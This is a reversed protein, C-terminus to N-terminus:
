GRGGAENRSVLQGENRSVLRLEDRSVLWAIGIV